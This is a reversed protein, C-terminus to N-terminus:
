GELAKILKAVNKENIKDAIVQAAKEAAPFDLEKGMAYAELRKKFELRKTAIATAGIKIWEKLEPLLMKIGEYVLISVLGEWGIFKEDTVEPKSQSCEKIFDEIFKQSDMMNEM